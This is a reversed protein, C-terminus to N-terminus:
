IFKKLSFLSLFFNFDTCLIFCSVYITYVKGHKLRANFASILKTESFGLIEEVKGSLSCTVCIYKTILAFIFLYVASLLQVNREEKRKENSLHWNLKEIHAFLLVLVLFCGFGGGWFFYFYIM